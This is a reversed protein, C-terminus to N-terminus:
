RVLRLDLWVAWDYTTSDGSLVRLTFTGVQEVKINKLPITESVPSERYTVLKSLLVQEPGGKPTFVVEFTVGDGNLIASQPLGLVAVLSDTPQLPADVTYRGEILGNTQHPHTLLVEQATDRRGRMEAIGKAVIGEPVPITLTADIRGSKVEYTTEKSTWTAKDANIIFDYVMTENPKSVVAGPEPPVVEIQAYLDAGFPQGKLDYIQWHTRYSGTQLPAVLSVTVNSRAEPMLMPVNFQPQNHLIDGDVYRATYGPAWPCTGNNQMEWVKEFTSGAVIKTGDPITVDDYFRAGSTCGAPMDVKPALTPTISPPTETPNIAAALSDSAAAVTPTTMPPALETLVSKDPTTLTAVTSKVTAIKEVSETPPTLEEANSEAIETAEPSVWTRWAMAGGGGVCLLLIVAIAGAIWLWPRPNSEVTPASARPTIVPHSGTPSAAMPPVALLTDWDPSTPLKTRAPPSQSVAQELVQTLSLAFNERCGQERALKALQRTAEVPPHKSAVQAIDKDTLYGTLGGSCLVVSDGPFLRRYFIEIPVESTLGLGRTVTVPAKEPGLREISQQWTVYARNDGVNVVMLKNQHILGAMLAAVLPRRDPHTQNREYIALNTKQIVEILRKEVDTETSKRYFDHLIRQTAYQSVVAGGSISDTILYLRGRENLEALADPEFYTTVDALARDPQSNYQGAQVAREESM